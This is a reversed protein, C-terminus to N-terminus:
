SWRANGMHSPTWPKTDSSNSGSRNRRSGNGNDEPEESDEPEEVIPLEEAASERPQGLPPHLTGANRAMPNTAPADAPAPTPWAQRDIANPDSRQTSWLLCVFAALIALTLLVRFGM